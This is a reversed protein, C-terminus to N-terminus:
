YTIKLNDIYIEGKEVTESKEALIFFYYGDAQYNRNVVETLNVYIKNWNVSPNITLVAEGRDGDPNRAIIGVSFKHNNKYDMELFVPQTTRPLPLPHDTFSSGAFKNSDADLFIGGCAIGNHKGLVSPDTIRIIDTNSGPLREIKNETEFDSLWGFTFDSRYKFVPKISSVEKPKFEHSITYSDYFPYAGRSAAIGNIIIGPRILLERKGQVLVPLTVPIEYAGILQEDVYVWVDTIKHSAAGQEPNQVTFDVSDIKLYAPIGESPDAPSCSSFFLLSLILSVCAVCYQNM